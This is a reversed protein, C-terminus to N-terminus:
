EVVLAPKAISATEGAGASHRATLLTACGVILAAGVWATWGLREGFVWVSLVSGIMPELNLLVGAQSAPVRMMGWNWLLTTATTCLAGSGLLSMWVGPSVHRVPPLGRFGVVIVVLMAVGLLLGYSSVAAPSHRDMLRRNTLVWVLAVLMALIVLGDGLVTAEGATSSSHSLAILGAGASSGALAMWGVRDLREHLFVSAGVALIVPMTGVMLSAHALTTHALGYFEVLFQIPIGFLAGLSLTLWDRGSFRVRTRPVFPLMAVAAFLFRYLVMSPVSLERLAIKGFFFGLGWLFAASGCALFGMRTDRQAM